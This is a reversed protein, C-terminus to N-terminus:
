PVVVPALAGTGERELSFSQTYAGQSISHSVQKVYYFGDYTDGVGRVGVVGRPKLLGEYRMADLEGSATIVNDSASDTEAQARAFAQVGDLGSERMRQVRAHSQTIVAPERSLPLRTAAFTQVPIETNLRRDQVSGRVTTPALANHQFNISNV